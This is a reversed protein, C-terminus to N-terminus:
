ANVVTSSQPLHHAERGPRKVGPSLVAPVWQIPPQTSGLTPVSSTAFLFIGLEQRSDFGSRGPRLTTVIGVSSDRSRFHHGGNRLNCRKNNDIYCCCSCCYDIMLAGNPLTNNICTFSFYLMDQLKTHCVYM